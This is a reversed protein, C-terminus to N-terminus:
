VGPDGDQALTATGASAPAGRPGLRHGEPAYLAGIVGRYKEAVVKRKVKQTPTLEGGEETFDGPLVAFKKIQAYSQLRANAADVVRGVRDIVKPHQALQAPDTVLIGQDRAFRALADANLTVLATPYPHRDGCVMAQSVFPDSRLLNEIPQPAINVGGSTM